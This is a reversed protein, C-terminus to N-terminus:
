QKVVFLGLGTGKEQEKTSYLPDFIKGVEEEKIGIGTDSIELRIQETQSSTKIKSLSIKLEGGEPMAQIANLCLNMVLQQFRAPNIRYRV